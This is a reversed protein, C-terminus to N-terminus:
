RVPSAKPNLKKPLWTSCQTGSVVSTEAKRQAGGKMFGRLRGYQNPPVSIPLARSAQRRMRTSRSSPSRMIM